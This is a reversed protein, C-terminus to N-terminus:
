LLYGGAEGGEPGLEIVHDAHRILDQNHETVIISHGIDVMHNMLRLLTEVDKFHLGTTPEDLLYLSKKHKKELLASALKLRQLEGGSYTHLAQGLTLYDLGINSLTEFYPFLKKEESFFVKANEVTLQRVQDM